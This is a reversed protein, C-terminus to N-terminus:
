YEEDSILPYVTSPSAGSGVSSSLILSLVWIIRCVRAAGFALVTFTLAQAVLGGQARGGDVILLALSVLLAIGLGRLGAFFLVSVRRQRRPTLLGGTAAKLDQKMLGALISVSTLTLGLLTGALTTMTQYVARRTGVDLDRIWGIHLVKVSLSLAEPSRLSLWGTIGFVGVAVVWDFSPRDIFTRIARPPRRRPEIETSSPRRSM